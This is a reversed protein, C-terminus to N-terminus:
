LLGLRAHRDRITDALATLATRDDPRPLGKCLVTGLLEVKLNPIMAALQDVVKTAWGYSGIIAAHKLKPRIANAVYTAHVVSPHAGLHVTSTGIVLTAADMLSVALHGLDAVTLNFKASEIGRSALANILHDVMVETSGHMSVYPIVVRNELRDSVWDRYADLILSPHNHLPGHSPAILDFALADIKKLHGQIAARFPMMIEAYYRAAAIRVAPDAGALLRSTALHSGFLDCTFLIREEPLLTIMTEPWHVWPTYVFHLSRDGLSVTEGDAVIRVRAEEVQLHDILMPKAKASCLITAEPYRALVSPITGSHDQEVHQCVIYDLRPVDALPEMLHAQLTPDVTDILATKESGRVLYANYSTGEPLPILDDFLRRNWDVAGVWHVRESIMKAQM